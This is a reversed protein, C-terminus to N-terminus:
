HLAKLIAMEDSTINTGNKIKIAIKFHIIIIKREYFIYMYLM